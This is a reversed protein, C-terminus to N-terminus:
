FLYVGALDRFEDAKAFPNFAVFSRDLCRKLKGVAVANHLPLNMSELEDFPLAITTGGKRQEALPNEVL